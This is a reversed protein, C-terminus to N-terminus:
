TVIEPELSIVKSNDPIDKKIVVNADIYVNKGITVGRNVVVNPGIYTNCGIHVASKLFKATNDRIGNSGQHTFLKTGAGIIVNDGITLKGTGDLITFPGIWCNKGITVDGFVYSSDYISSGEGFNLFNAKEHRDIFYDGLPLIRNFKNKKTIKLAHLINVFKKLIKLEKKSHITADDIIKSNIM